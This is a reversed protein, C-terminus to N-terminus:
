ACVLLTHRGRRPARVHQRDLAALDDVAVSLEHDRAPDADAAPHVHLVEDGAVRGVLLGLALRDALHVKTVLQV